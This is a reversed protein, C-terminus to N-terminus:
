VKIKYFIENTSSKTAVKKEESYKVIIDDDEKKIETKVLQSIESKVRKMEEHRRRRHDQM